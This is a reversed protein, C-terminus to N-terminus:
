EVPTSSKIFGDASRSDTPEARVDAGVVVYELSVREITSVLPPM